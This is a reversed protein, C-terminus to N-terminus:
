EQIDIQITETGEEETTPTIEIAIPTSEDKLKYTLDVSTTGGAANPFFVDSKNKNEPNWADNIETLTEGGQKVEFLTAIFLTSTDYDYIRNTWSLRIDALLEESEEYVEVKEVVVDFQKFNYEENVDVKLDIPEPEEKKPEEEEATTQIEEENEGSNQADTEGSCGTLAILIVFYVFLKIFTSKKM